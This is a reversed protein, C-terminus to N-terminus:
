IRANRYKEIVAGGLIFRGLSATKVKRPKRVEIEQMTWNQLQTKGSNTTAPGISELKFTTVLSVLSAEPATRVM